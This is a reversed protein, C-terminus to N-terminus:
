AAASILAGVVQAGGDNAAARYGAVARRAAPNEAGRQAPEGTEQAATGDGKKTAGAVTASEEAGNLRQQTIELQAQLAMQTAQAAVARDQVSPDAPALAAAKIRQAKIITEQPTDAPSVDIRVEGGVAYQRGDPGRRYSFNAGGQALEGAAALHAQEHSRVRQDVSKLEDIVRKEQLTKPDLTSSTGSPKREAGDHRHATPLDNAAGPSQAEAKSVADAGAGAVSKYQTPSYTSYPSLSSTASIM